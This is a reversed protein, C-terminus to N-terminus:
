RETLLLSVGGCVSEAGRHAELPKVSACFVTQLDNNVVKSILEACLFRIARILLGLAM